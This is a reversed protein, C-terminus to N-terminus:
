LDLANKTIRLVSRVHGIALSARKSAALLQSTKVINKIQRGNVDHGALETIEEISLQAPPQSKRLLNTWIVKRAAINLDPYHLRLHIRSEFAQDFTSVRNTTLFLIGKYYELMRLFVIRTLPDYDIQRSSLKSSVIKNRALNSFDRQELFVDAEDLLLVANWKTVLELVVTLTDEISSASEGLEGASLSYLPARMEEAVIDNILKVAV